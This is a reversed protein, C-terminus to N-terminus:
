SGPREGGTRPIRRSAEIGQNFLNQMPTNLYPLTLSIVLFGAGLTIPFGIGFLNLQPAARTLIALALNTILMAAIIPMGIQLGASFIRGGWRVMELPAALSM